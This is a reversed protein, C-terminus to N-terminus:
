CTISPSVGISPYIHLILLYLFFSRLFGTSFDIVMFHIVRVCTSDELADIRPFSLSPLKKPGIERSGLRYVVSVVLMREEGRREERRGM